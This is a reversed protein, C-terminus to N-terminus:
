GASSGGAGGTTGGTSGGTSGTSGTSGTTSGSSTTSGTTDTTGTSTNTTDSTTSSTTSTTGTTETSAGTTDSTGTGTGTTTDTTATTSGTTLATGQILIDATAFAGSAVDTLKVTVNGPALASLFGVPTIDVLDAGTPVSWQLSGDPLIILNGDKDVAHGTLQATVGTQMVVPVGDIVVSAVTSDFTLPADVETNANVIFNADFSAVVPGQADFDLFAQGHVVYTGPTLAGFTIKQTYALKTVRNITQVIPADSGRQITIQVCNAYAPLVRTSAPWPLSFVLSQGQVGGTSGGSGTGSGTVTATTTGGGGGGGGCGILIAALVILCLVVFLSRDRLKSATM